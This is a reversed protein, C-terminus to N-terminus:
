KKPDVPASDDGGSVALGILVLALIPVLIGARSGAAAQQEVEEELIPLALGGALAPGAMVISLALAALTRMQSM